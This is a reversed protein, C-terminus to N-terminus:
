HSATFILLAAPFNEPFISCKLRHCLIELLFKTMPMDFSEWEPSRAENIVVPWYNPEGCTKWYLVDGNDTVAFPLIGGAEPFLRYPVIEGFSQLEVLVDMQEKTQEILNLNKNKSFPNFVWLFNAVNGSGYIQIFDKFDEPFAFGFRAELAIWEDKGPAEFTSTPPPMVRVIDDITM